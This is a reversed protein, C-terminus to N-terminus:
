RDGETRTPFAGLGSQGTHRGKPEVLNSERVVIDAAAGRALELESLRRHLNSTRISLVYCWLAWLVNCAIVAQLIRDANM